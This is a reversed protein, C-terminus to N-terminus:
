FINYFIYKISFDTYYTKSNKYIVTNPTIFNKGYNYELAKIINKKNPISVITDMYNIKELEGDFCDIWKEKSWLNILNPHDSIVVDAHIGNQLNKDPFKMNSEDLFIQIGNKYQKEIDAVREDFVLDNKIYIKKEDDYKVTKCFDAWKHFDKSYIIIDIDDDQYIPKNRYIELLNGCSIIYKINNTDLISVINKLLTKKYNYVFEYTKDNVIVNKNHEFKLPVKLIFLQYIFFLLIIVISFYLLIYNM